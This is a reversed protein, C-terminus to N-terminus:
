RNLGLRELERYRFCDMAHDNVMGISQMLAYCITTGVFKFGRKKLDKSLADSELSRAPPPHAGTWRNQITRGSTFRWMYAAFSGCATKVELFRHANVV